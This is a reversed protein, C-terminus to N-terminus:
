FMSSKCLSLVLSFFTNAAALSLSLCVTPSMPRRIWPVSAVVVSSVVCASVTFSMLVQVFGILWGGVCVYLNSFTTLM